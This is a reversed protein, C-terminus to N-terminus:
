SLSKALIQPSGACSHRVVICHPRMAEINKATDILTEGKTVSSSSSAFALTGAGLKRSALEFSTRTRTSNEFFLTVITKGQLLPINEGGQFHPAFARATALLHRIEATDLDAAALLHRQKQQSM